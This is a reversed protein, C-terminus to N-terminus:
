PVILVAIDKAYNFVKHATSGSFFDKIGSLGRRGLVILDYGSRAESLIDRAIGTRIPQSKTTVQAADFGNALLIQRAQRITEAVRKRKKEELLNFHHQQSRLHPALAPRKLHRLTATDVAVNFLTVRSDPKFCTAVLTAARLANESDDMALLIQTQM